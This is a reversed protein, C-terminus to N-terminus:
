ATPLNAKEWKGQETDEWSKQEFTGGPRWCLCNAYSDLCDLCSACDMCLGLAEDLDTGQCNPCKDMPAYYDEGGGNYVQLAKGSLDSVKEEDAYDWDNLNSWGQRVGGVQYLDGRKRNSWGYWSYDTLFGSNSYWVGDIQIGQNSNVIRVKPRGSRTSVFVLKNGDNIAQGLRLAGRRSPVGNPNDVYRAIRDVFIRTDSRRDKWGPHFKSPLIGNHAMVSDEGPGVYFPHINYEGMEGHTGYRSHFMVLSGTGMEDRAELMRELSESFDMSKGVLMESGRAVVWGHGDNNIIAGNKIGQVPVEVGSPVYTIMCM